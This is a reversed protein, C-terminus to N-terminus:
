CRSPHSMGSLLMGADSANRDFEPRIESLPFELLRKQFAVLQRHLRYSRFVGQIINPTVLGLTSRRFGETDSNQRTQNDPLPYPYRVAFLVRAVPMKQVPNGSLPRRCLIISVGIWSLADIETLADPGFDLIVAVSQFFVGQPVKNPGTSIVLVPM